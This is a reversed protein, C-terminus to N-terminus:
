QVIRGSAVSAVRATRRTVSSMSSHKSTRPSRARSCRTTWPVQGYCGTSRLPRHRIWRAVQDSTTAGPSRPAPTASSSPHRTWPYRAHSCPPVPAGTGASRSGSCALGAMELYKRFTRRLNHQSYAGGNRNHFVLDAERLGVFRPQLVAAALEPVAIERVSADTQPHDQRVWGQGKRPVITGTVRRTM